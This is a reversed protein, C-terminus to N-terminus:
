QSIIARSDHMNPPMDEGCRSDELGRRFLTQGRVKIFSAYWGIVKRRNDPALVSGPTIGDAYLILHWILGANLSVLFLELPLRVPSCAHMHCRRARDNGCRLKQFSDPTLQFAHAVRLGSDRVLGCLAVRWHESELCLFPLVKQLPALSWNEEAADAIPVCTLHWDNPGLVIQSGRFDSTPLHRM